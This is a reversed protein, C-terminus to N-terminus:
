PCTIHVEGQGLATRGTTSSKEKKLHANEEGATVLSLALLELFQQRGAGPM